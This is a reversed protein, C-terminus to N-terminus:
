RLFDLLTPQLVQATASLTAQLAFQLNALDSASKVVDADELDALQKTQNVIDQDHISDTLDIRKLAAGVIARSNNISELSSDLNDLSALIAFTDNSNLADRLKFLTNFVNKGGSLGLNEATDDSGVNNVIAVTSSDNSGVLLSNGANNISATVNLSSSNIQNIVDGITIASSLTVTGSASGNVIGIQNITLGDGGNLESILTSSTITPNLDSGSINGDRQGLIGLKLAVNSSSEDTVSLSQTILSSGDTLELGYGSLNISATVNGSLGNIKSILSGITDTSTVVVSGANGSRDTITFSGPNIGLGANLVSLSTNSTLKPNLDNALVESGPITFNANVNEGVSIQFRESNGFYVAGSTSQEFPQTRFATGSFVFQNKIKINASDFTQAIIQDFEKAAFGRTEATALGGLEAVALEKARILNIDVSQLSSDSVEIYLRNNDINRTFQSAKSISSRLLLSDRVGAPDDSLKNIKKGSAIEQQAKFLDETIRYINKLSNAQQAQNTVRTVM